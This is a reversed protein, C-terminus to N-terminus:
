FMWPFHKYQRVIWIDLNYYKLDVSDKKYGIIFDYYKSLNECVWKILSDAIPFCMATLDPNDNKMPHLKGSPFAVNSFSMM